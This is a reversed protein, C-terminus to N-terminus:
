KMTTLIWSVTKEGEPPCCSRWFTYGGGKQSTDAPPVGVEAAEVFACIKPGELKGEDFEVLVAMRGHGASRYTTQGLDSLHWSSAGM